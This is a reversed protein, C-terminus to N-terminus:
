LMSDPGPDPDPAPAPAAARGRPLGRECVDPSLSSKCPDGLALSPSSSLPTSPPQLSPSSSTDGPPLAARDRRLLPPLTEPCGLEEPVRPPRVPARPVRTGREPPAAMRLGTCRAVEPGERSVAPLPATTPTGMARFDAATGDGRDVADSDGVARPGATGQTLGMFRLARKPLDGEETVTAAGGGDGCPRRTADAVGAVPPEWLLALVAPSMRGSDSSAPVPSPSPDGVSNLWTDASHCRDVWRVDTDRGRSSRSAKSDGSGPRYPTDMRRRVSRPAPRTTCPKRVTFTHLISRLM